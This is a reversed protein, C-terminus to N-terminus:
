TKRWFIKKIVNEDGYSDRLLKVNQKTQMNPQLTSDTFNSSIQQLEKIPKYM